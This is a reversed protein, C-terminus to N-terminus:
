RVGDDFFARAAAIVAAQTTATFGHGEGSVYTVSCRDGAAAKLAASQSSPVFADSTGHWLQFRTTRPSSWIANVSASAKAATDAAYFDVYPDLGASVSPDGRLDIPPYIAFVRHVDQQAGILCALHGGSSEGFLSIKDAYPKLFPAAKVLRYFDDIDNQLLPSAFGFATLRFKPSLVLYAPDSTGALALCYDYIKEPYGQRWGGGHMAIVPRVKDVTKFAAPLYAVALMMAGDRNYWVLNRVQRITTNGPTRSRDYVTAQTLVNGWAVAPSPKRLVLLRYVDDMAQEYSYLEGFVRLVSTISDQVDLDVSHSKQLRCISEVILWRNRAADAHYGTATECATLVTEVIAGYSTGGALQATWYAAGDPDEGRTKGLVHYFMLDVSVANDMDLIYSSSVASRLANVATTVSASAGVVGSWYALGDRDPARGFLALFAKAVSKETVSLAAASAVYSKLGATANDSSVMNRSTTTAM